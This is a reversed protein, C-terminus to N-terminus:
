KNGMPQPPQMAAIMRDQLKKQVDAPLQANCKTMGDAGAALLLCQKFGAPWGDLECSQQMVGLLQDLMKTTQPDNGPLQAGMQARLKAAVQTCEGSGGGAGSGAGPPPQAVGFMAPACQQAALKDSAKEICAGQDKDVFAKECHARYKAVVPARDEPEAYNGLDYSALQEAIAACDAPPPRVCLNSLCMLGPDCLKNPKCDGREKGLAPRDSGAAPKNGQCGAAALFGMMLGIAASRM